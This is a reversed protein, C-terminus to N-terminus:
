PTASPRAGPSSCTTSPRPSSPGTRPRRPPWSRGSRSGSWQWRPTKPLQDVLRLAASEAAKIRTPPVDTAQMSGSTDIALVINAQRRPVTTMHRPHAAGVLLSAMALLLIVPIVHRRWGPRKPLLNPLLAPNAFRAVRGGRRKEYAFYLFLLVPLALLAVLVIPEDFHISSM